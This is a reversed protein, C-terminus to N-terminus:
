ARTKRSPAKSEIAIALEDFMPRVSSENLYAIGKETARALVSDRKIVPKRIFLPEKTKLRRQAIHEAEIAAAEATKTLTLPENPNAFTMTGIIGSWSIQPNVIPKLEIFQRAFSEVAAASLGDVVTPVYLHTAACFGNVFGLTFRPPADILIRDYKEQIEPELLARALRYRVDDKVAALAWRYEVSREIKEFDYFASIYDLTSTIPRIALKQWNPDLEDQFLFDIRSDPAQDSADNQIQALSSHSGQYDLDITLIREGRNAFAAALNTVLTSKGVGGKLNGFLLIPISAALLSEYGVLRLGVPRSWFRAAPGDTMTLAATIRGNTEDLETQVSVVKKRLEDESADITAKLKGLSDRDRTAASESLEARHQAEKTTQEAYGRLEKEHAVEAQWKNLDKRLRSLMWVLATTISLGVVSALNALGSAIDFWPRAIEICKAIKEPSDFGCDM